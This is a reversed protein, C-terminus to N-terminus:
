NKYFLNYYESEEFGEPSVDQWRKDIAIRYFPGLLYARSDYPTVQFTPDENTLLRQIQTFIARPSISQHKYL